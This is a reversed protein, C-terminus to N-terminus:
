PFATAREYGDEVGHVVDASRLRDGAATFHLWLERDDVLRYVFWPDEADALAAPLGFRQQM